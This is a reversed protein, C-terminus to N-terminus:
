SNKFNFSKNNISIVLRLVNLIISNSKFLNLIRFKQQKNFIKTKTIMEKRTSFLIWFQNVIQITLCFTLIPTRSSDFVFTISIYNSRRTSLWFQFVLHTQILFLNHSHSPSWLSLGNNLDFAIKTFAEYNSTLNLQM